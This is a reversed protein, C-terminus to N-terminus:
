NNIKEKKEGGTVGVEIFFYRDGKRLIIDPQKSQLTSPLHHLIEQPLGDRQRSTNFLVQDFVKLRQYFEGIMEVMENARKTHFDHFHKCSCLLHRLNEVFGPCFPCLSSPRYGWLAATANTASCRGTKVHILRRVDDRRTALRRWLTNSMRAELGDMTHFHKTKMKEWEENYGDQQYSKLVTRMVEPSLFKFCYPLSTLLPNSPRVISRVKGPFEQQLTSSTFKVTTQQKDEAARKALEDAKENGHIVIHPFQHHVKDMHSPVYRLVINPFQQLKKRITYILHHHQHPYSINGVTGLAFQSDSLLLIPIGKDIKQDVLTDLAMNIAELEAEANTAMGINKSTTWVTSNHLPNNNSTNNVQPQQPDTNNNNTIINPHIFVASSGGIKLGSKVKVSSGDTYICISERFFGGVFRAFDNYHMMKVKAADEDSPQKSFLKEAHTSCFSIKWVDRQAVYSLSLKYQNCMQEMHKWPPTVSRIPIQTLPPPPSEFWKVRQDDIISRLAVKRVLNWQSDANWQKIINADVGTMM